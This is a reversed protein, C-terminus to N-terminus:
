QNNIRESLEILKELSALRVEEYKFYYTENISYDIVPNDTVGDEKFPNKLDIICYDFDIEPFEDSQFFDIKVFLDYKERFWDFAQQWLPINELVYEKYIDDYDLRGVHLLIKDKDIQYQNNKIYHALCEEDFGLEKLKVALEYPVFQEKM